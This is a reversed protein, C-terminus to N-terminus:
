PLIKVVIVNDAWEGVEKKPNCGMNTTRIYIIYTGKSVYNYILM